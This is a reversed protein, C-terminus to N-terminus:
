SNRIDKKKFLVFELFNVIKLITFFIIAAECPKFNM